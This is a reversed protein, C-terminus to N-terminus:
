VKHGLKDDEEAWATCHVLLLKVAFGTPNGGIKLSREGFKNDKNSLSVFSFHPKGRGGPFGHRRWVRECTNIM